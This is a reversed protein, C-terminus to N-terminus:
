LLANFTNLENKLLIKTNQFNNESCQIYQIIEYM